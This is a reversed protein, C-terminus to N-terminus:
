PREVLFSAGPSSLTATIDERGHVDVRRVCAPRVHAHHDEYQRRDFQCLALRRAARGRLLVGARSLLMTSRILM